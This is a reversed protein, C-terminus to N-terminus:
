FSGVIGAGFASPVIQMRLSGAKVAGVSVNSYHLLPVGYGILTGLLAGTLIDSTYHVDALVRFSATAAAVAYGGACSVADWPPGLLEHKMHNTCILAASTFSFASHGSFFSRYHTSGECDVARDPLEGGCDRGYPRERGVIVNTTGQVAGSIALTQLNILAMQEAFDRSGRYWWASVLSDAFFPWTALLSLGVDSADRIIYRTQLSDPRVAERIDEDFWIGGTYGTDRPKIIAAALTMGGGAVTVVWDLTSFRKWRWELPLGVRDPATPTGGLVVPSPTPVPPIDIPHGLPDQRVVGGPGAKDTTEPTRGVRVEAKDDRTEKESLPGSIIDPTTYPPAPAQAHAAGAVSVVVVAALVGRARAILSWDSLGKSNLRLIRAPTLAAPLM